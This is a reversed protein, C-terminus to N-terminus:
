IELILSNYESSEEVDLWDVLLLSRTHIAPPPPFLNHLKM